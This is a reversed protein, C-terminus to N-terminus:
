ARPQRPLCELSWAFARASFSTRFLKICIRILGFEISSSLFSHLRASFIIIWFQVETCARSLIIVSTLILKKLLDLFGRAINQHVYEFLQSLNQGHVCIGLFLKNDIFTQPFNQILFILYGAVRRDLFGNIIYAGDVRILHDFIISRVIPINQELLQLLIVGILDLQHHGTMPRPNSVSFHIKIQSKNNKHITNEVNM